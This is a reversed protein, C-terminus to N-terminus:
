KDQKKGLDEMSESIQGSQDALLSEPKKLSANYTKTSLYEKSYEQGYYRGYYSYSSKTTKVDNLVVGIVNANVHKLQEFAKKLDARKTVTPRVVLIVGDVRPALALADTMMLLPSSDLITEDFQNALQNLISIMKESGLLESPNPLMKGSTLVQLGNIETQKLSGNLRDELHLFQDALGFDNNMQFVKHLYPRHMDADVLVVKRGSQAIVNALNIAVMTKGDKPSASTILITHAGGKFNAFNLNIRLSRFAETIPSRPQQTTIISNKDHKYRMITGLVPVGWKRTIEEQDRITDDLFDILFIAALALILGGLAALLANRIPTPKVPGNPMVATGKLSVSSFSQAETVELQEYIQLLNNYSQQYQGRTVEMQAEETQYQVLNSQLQDRTALDAAATKVDVSGPTEIAKQIRNNIPTLANNTDVIQQDFAAIRMTADQVNKEIAAMQSELNKKTDAYRSSQDVQLQDSFVQVVTNAILAVRNRDTDQVTVTILQTNLIPTAQVSATPPFSALNLRKAVGDLVTQYTMMNAYTSALEQDTTISTYTVAQATTPAVDILAVASAQYILTQRNSVWYAIGGALVTYLILLWAGHWLLVAYDRIRGTQTQHEIDNEM